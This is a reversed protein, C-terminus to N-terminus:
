SNQKLFGEYRLLVFQSFTLGLHRMLRAQDKEAIYPHGGTTSLASYNKELAEREVKTLLNQRELFNRIDTANKLMETPITKKNLTSYVCSAVQGLIADLVKRTNSISDDWKGDIFHEESRNLHHKITDPDPLSLGDILNEM